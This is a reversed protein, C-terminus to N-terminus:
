SSMHQGDFLIHPTDKEEDSLMDTFTHQLMNLAAKAGLYSGGIGIVLLVDSDHKISNAASQIKELETANEEMVELWGLFDKGEGTKQHIKDHTEQVLQHYNDIEEPKIFPLISQSTFSLKNM